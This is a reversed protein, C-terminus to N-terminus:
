ASARGSASFEDTQGSPNESPRGGARLRRPRPAPKTERERAAAWLEAYTEICRLLLEHPYIATCCWWDRQSINQLTHEGGGIAQTKVSGDSPEIEVLLVRWPAGEYEAARFSRLTPFTLAEGLLDVVARAVIAASSAPRQRQTEEWLARTTVCSALSFARTRYLAPLGPAWPIRDDRYATNDFWRKLVRDRVDLAAIELLQRPRLWFREAEEMTLDPLDASVRM